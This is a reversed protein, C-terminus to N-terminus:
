YGSKLIVNGLFGCNEGQADVVRLSVRFAHAPLPVSKDLRAVQRPDVAELTTHALEDGMDSYFVAELSGPVFVGFVGQLAVQDGSVQASFPQSIAGAWVAKQIPNPARTPAWHLTFEYQQGPDLTAYPSLVETELFYPTKEVNDPLTQIFAGRSITGPGDNWSEVSANDPYPQEPFYKFTEVLAINKQGNEVACWGASSDAAVKGVQYMYHIRLMRRQDIAHYSPNRADGYPNYFGRLFKSQPNIPVYAYLDPNPKSPDHLDAADNQVLDWIGWRTRRRSINRMVQDVEVRTTGAFVHFTRSFEVGTRPDPPSTVRVAVEQPTEKVVESQFHGGDFVSYPTSPWEEDKMWGEPAPWVRDGGYNALDPNVNTAGEPVVKGALGSNVFFYSQDGLQLQVARGGVEPAVYLKIIGNTLLYAKWGNYVTRELKASYSPAPAAMAQTATFLARPVPLLAQAV